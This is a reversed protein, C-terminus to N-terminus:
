FRFSFDSFGKYQKLGYIVMFVKQMFVDTIFM